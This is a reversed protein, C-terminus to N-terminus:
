FIPCYCDGLQIYGTPAAKQQIVTQQVTQTAATVTMTMVVAKFQNRADISVFFMAASILLSFLRM